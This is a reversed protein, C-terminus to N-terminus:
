KDQKFFDNYSDPKKRTISGLFGLNNYDKVINILKEKDQKLSENDTELHSVKERAEDLLKKIVENKHQSKSLDQRIKETNKLKYNVDKIEHIEVNRSLKSKDNHLIFIKKKLSSIESASEKEQKSLQEKLEKIENELKTTLTKDFQRNGSNKSYNKNSYTKNHSSKNKTTHPSSKTLSNRALSNKRANVSSDTKPPSSNTTKSSKYDKIHSKKNNIVVM